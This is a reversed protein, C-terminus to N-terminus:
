KATGELPKRYFLLTFTRGDVRQTEHRHVGFGNAEYFRRAATQSPMTDLVVFTYGRERMRSELDDYVRQGYGRRQYAPDVRMRKVEATKGPLDLFETAYGEAPRFAGMAVIDGGIVGVLFEGGSDLYAGEIDELDPEPVGEVYAGVDRMATEHLELVREHDAPRYRRLSLTTVPISLHCRSM